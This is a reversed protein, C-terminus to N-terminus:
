WVFLWALHISRSRIQRATVSEGPLPKSQSGPDGRGAADVARHRTPMDPTYGLIAGWGL